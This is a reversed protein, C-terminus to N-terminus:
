LSELIAQQIANTLYSNVHDTIKMLDRERTCYQYIEKITVITEIIKNGIDLKLTYSGNANQEIKLPDTNKQTTEELYIKIKNYRYVEDNAIKSLPHMERGGKM